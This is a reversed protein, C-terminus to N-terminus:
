GDVIQRIRRESLGFQQALKCYRQPDHRRQWAAARIADHDSAPTPRIYLESGGYNRRIERDFQQALPSPLGMRRAIEVLENVADM